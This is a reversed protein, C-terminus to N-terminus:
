VPAARLSVVACRAHEPCDVSLPCGGATTVGYASAAAFQAHALLFAVVGVSTLLYLSANSPAYTPHYKGYSGVLDNMQGLGHWAFARDTIAWCRCPQPADIVTSM